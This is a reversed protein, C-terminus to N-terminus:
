SFLGAGEAKGSGSVHVPEHSGAVGLIAPSALCDFDEDGLSSRAGGSVGLKSLPRRLEDM